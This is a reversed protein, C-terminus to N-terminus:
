GLAVYADLAEWFGPPRAHRFLLNERLRFWQQVEDPPEYQDLLLPLDTAPDRFGHILAGDDPMGLRSAYGTPQRHELQQRTVGLVYEFHASLVPHRGALRNNHRVGDLYAVSSGLVEAVPRIGLEVVRRDRDLAELFDVAYPYTTSEALADEFARLAAVLRIVPSSNAPLEDGTTLPPAHLAYWGVILITRLANELWAPGNAEIGSPFDPVQWLQAYLDVLFRYDPYAEAPEYLSRLYAAVERSAYADGGLLHFLYLGTVAVARSELITLPRLYGGRADPLRVSAMVDHVTVKELQRGLLAFPATDGGWGPAVYRAPAGRLSDFWFVRAQLAEPGRRATAAESVRPLDRLPRGDPLQRLTRLLEGADTQLGLTELCARGSFSAGFPTTLLDIKHTLEHTYFGAIGLVDMRDHEDLERYWQVADAPWPVGGLLEAMTPYTGHEWALHFVTRALPSLEAGIESPDIGLALSHPKFDARLLAGKTLSQSM